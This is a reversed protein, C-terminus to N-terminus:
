KNFYLVEKDNVLLDMPKDHKTVPVKDIMQESFCFGCRAAKCAKNAFFHDFYGGGRGLRNGERDFGLGPTVVMDIDEMPIPVGVIPNRLGAVDTAFGIELSNIQVPIMHRQQWSVKPVAVIKGHQWAHLIIPASDIEHPLSLYLMVIGAKNFQETELLKRCALRSKDHRQQDSMKSLRNKLENRLQAKEM